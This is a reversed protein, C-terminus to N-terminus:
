RAEVHVARACAAVATLGHPSGRNSLGPLAGHGAILGIAGNGDLPAPADEHEGEVPRVRAIRDIGRQVGLEGADKDFDPVIRLRIDDHEGAAAAREAGAAVDIPHLRRDVVRGQELFRPALRPLDHEALEIEVLREDAPEVAMGGPEARRESQQAVDDDRLLIGLDAIRVHGYPEDGAVAARQDPRLEDAVGLRPM